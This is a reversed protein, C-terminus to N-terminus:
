EEYEGLYLRRAEPSNTLIDVYTEYDDLLPKGLSIDQEPNINKGYLYCLYLRENLTPFVEISMHEAQGVREWDQEKIDPIIYAQFLGMLPNDEPQGSDKDALVLSCRRGFGAVQRERGKLSVTIPQGGIHSYIWENPLEYDLLPNVEKVIAVPSYRLFQRTVAKCFLIGEEKLTVGKWTNEENFHNFFVLYPDRVMQALVYVGNRLRLFYSERTELTNSQKEKGDNVLRLGVCSM